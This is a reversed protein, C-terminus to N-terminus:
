TFRRRPRLNKAQDVSVSGKPVLVRGRRWERQYTRNCGSCYRQPARDNPQDCKSCRPVDDALGHERRRQRTQVHAMM